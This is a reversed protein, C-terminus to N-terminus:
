FSLMEFPFDFFLVFFLILDERQLNQRIFILAKSIQNKVAQMSIDLEAAIEKNSKHQYRSLEFILKCRKPLKTVYAQITQELEDYEMKKSANISVDIINLRTLDQNPFKQNRFHNFVQFKIARFLYGELNTIQLQKRKSWFDIFINQILDECIEKKSLINLAYILMKSSYRNYIEEFAKMDDLAMRELLIETDCPKIM